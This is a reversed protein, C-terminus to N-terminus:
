TWSPGNVSSAVIRMGSPRARPAFSGTRTASFQSTHESVSHTGSLAFEDGLQVLIGARIAFTMATVVLSLCAMVFLRNSRETTQHGGATGTAVDVM